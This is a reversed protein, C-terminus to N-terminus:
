AIAKLHRKMCEGIIKGGVVDLAAFLSTTRHRKYDHSM